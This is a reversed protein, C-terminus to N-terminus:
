DALRHDAEDLLSIAIRCRTVLEDRASAGGVELSERPSLSALIEAALALEDRVGRTRKKAQTIATLARPLNRPGEYTRAQSVPDVKFM